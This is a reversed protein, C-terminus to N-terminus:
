KQSRTFIPSHLALLSIILLLAGYFLSAIRMDYRLGTLFLKIIDDTFLSSSIEHSGYTLLLYFRGLSQVGVTILWPLALTATAQKIQIFGMKTTERLINL